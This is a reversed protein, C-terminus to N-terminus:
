VGVAFPFETETHCVAACNGRVFDPQSHTQRASRKDLHHENTLQAIQRHFRYGSSAGIGGLYSLADIEMRQVRESLLEIDSDEDDDDHDEFSSQQNPSVGTELPSVSPVVPL